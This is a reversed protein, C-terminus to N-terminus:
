PHTCTYSFFVFALCSEQEIVPRPLFLPPCVHTVVLCFPILMLNFITCLLNRLFFFLATIGLFRQCNILSCHKYLVSQSCLSITPLPVHHCLLLDLFYLLLAQSSLCPCVSSQGRKGPCPYISVSHIRDPSSISHLTAAVEVSTPRCQPHSICTHTCTFTVRIM